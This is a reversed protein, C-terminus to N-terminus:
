LLDTRLWMRGNAAGVPSTTRLELTFGNPHPDATSTHAALETDTYTNADAEAADAKSTADTSAAAIAAAQAATASGAADFDGVDEYAASGLPSTPAGAAAAPNTRM